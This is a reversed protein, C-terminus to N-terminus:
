NKGVRGASAPHSGHHDNLVVHVTALGQGLKELPGPVDDAADGVSALRERGHDVVRGVDDHEVEM